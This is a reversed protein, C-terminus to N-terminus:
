SALLFIRVLLALIDEALIFFYILILCKVIIVLITVKVNIYQLLSYAQSSIYDLYM